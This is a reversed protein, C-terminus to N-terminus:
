GSIVGDWWKCEQKGIDKLEDAVRTEFQKRTEDQGMSFVSHGIVYEEYDSDYIMEIGTKEEFTYPEIYEYDDEKEFGPIDDEKKYKKLLAEKMTDADKFSKGFLFFSTTSSNSVFGQRIKM